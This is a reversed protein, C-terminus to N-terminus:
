EIVINFMPPFACLLRAGHGLFHGIHYVLFGHHLDCHFVILDGRASSLPQSLQGRLWLLASDVRCDRAAVLTVESRVSKNTPWSAVTSWSGACRIVATWFTVAGAYASPLEV